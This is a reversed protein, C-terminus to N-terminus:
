EQQVEPKNLFHSIGYYTIPPNFLLHIDKKMAELNHENISFKLWNDLIDPNVQDFTIFQEEVLNDVKLRHVSFKERAANNNKDIGVFYYRLEEVVNKFSGVDVVGVTHIRFSFSYLEDYNM